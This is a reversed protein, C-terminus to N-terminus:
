NLNPQNYYNPQNMYTDGPNFISNTPIWQSGGAALTAGSNAGGSTDVAGTASIRQTRIALSIVQSGVIMRGYGIPIAGGQRTTNVPGTFYYSPADEATIRDVSGLKPTGIIMQSIGSIAMSLGITAFVGGLGAGASFTAGVGAALGASSGWGGAAAAAAGGTYIIAVVLIVAGLIALLGGGSGRPQPYFHFEEVDDGYEHMLEVVDTVAEKGILVNYAVGREAGDQLYRFIKGGLADVARIAEAPSKVALEWVKGCRQGLRGHLFIKKKM